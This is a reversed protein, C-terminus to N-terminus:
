VTRVPINMNNLYSGVIQNVREMRAGGINSVKSITNKVEIEPLSYASRLLVLGKKKLFVVVSVPNGQLTEKVRKL